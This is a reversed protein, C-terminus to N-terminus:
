LSRGEGSSALPKAPPDDVGLDVKIARYSGGVSGRRGDSDHPRSYMGYRISTREAIVFAAGFLMQSLPSGGLVIFIDDKHAARLTEVIKKLDGTIREQDHVNAAAELIYNVEGVNALAAMDFTHGPKPKQIVYVKVM